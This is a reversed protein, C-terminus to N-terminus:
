RAVILSLEADIAEGAADYFTRWLIRMQAQLFELDSAYDDEDGIDDLEEDVDEIDLDDMMEELIEVLTHLSGVSYDGCDLKGDFEIPVYYECGLDSVELRDMFEALLEEDLGDIVSGSASIDGTPLELAPDGLHERLQTLVLEVEDDDLRDPLTGLKIESM